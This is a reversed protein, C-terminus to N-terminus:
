LKNRCGVSEVQLRKAQSKLLCWRLGVRVWGPVALMERLVTEADREQGNKAYRVRAGTGPPRTFAPALEGPGTRSRELWRLPKDNKRLGM